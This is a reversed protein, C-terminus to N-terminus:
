FSKLRKREVEKIVSDVMWGCPDFKGEFWNMKDDWYGVCSEYVERIFGYSIEVILPKSGDFVYDIAICKSGLKEALQFSMQIVSDNFHIKDYLVKGSGSARFDNDRIMRKIAFAKRDIVIVRIDHDNGPIFDQFYIYGRDRGKIKSYEPPYIFRVVGKAISKLSGKGIRWKRLREKLNSSAEYQSFGSGFAKIILKKAHSKNEVLRVNASGAGGRLKFVKPFATQRIWSLASQKDYFIYTPVLNVGAAELLYKQGLKDDFHWDTRFDPFVVKGTHELASILQKAFIIDRVGSQDHHWMFADCDLLQQIIDNKYCDVYKYELGIEQCYNKWYPHFGITSNQIGIKL